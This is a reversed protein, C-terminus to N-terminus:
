NYPGMTVAFLYFFVPAIKFKAGTLNMMAFCNLWDSRATFPEFRRLFIGGPNRTQNSGVFGDSCCGPLGKRRDSEDKLLSSTLCCLSQLIENALGLM